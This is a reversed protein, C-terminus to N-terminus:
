SAQAQRLEELLSERDGKVGKADFGLKKAGQLLGMINTGQNDTEALIRIRSIPLHLGYNACVSALCAAGCDSM